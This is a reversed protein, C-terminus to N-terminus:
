RKGGPAERGTELCTISADVSFEFKSDTSRRRAGGSRADAFCHSGKLAAAIKDVNEAADTTGQLHLKDKTLEIREFRVPVDAPVRESVEAFADVASVRPIAAGATGRGRLVAQAEEFNSFCRGVIKQEADCLSRDLASEHHSLAFAKVGASVIALLVVLGAYAALRAVKGKVHEFDRTFALDGRRLNLRPARSGQQGRLALALALALAPAEAPAIAQAAPGALELPAVTGEVEPAVAEALVPLRGAEGALALRAVPRQGARARWARLTARLERLLPALARRLTEPVRPDNAKGALAEPLEPGGGAAAVVAAGEAETISLERALARALHAGGFAFTRAAECGGTVVAISTRELGVDVVVGAGAPAGEAPAPAAALAGAQFLSAYAAAAPVVARPDIGVEALAALLGSLEERRAVAVLLDTKGPYAGLPQWDWAVDALDFPIQGEVEFGVTQEIRKPDTFPLTVVNSSVGAGPLAVVVSDFRWGREDLLARAAAAQRAALPQAADAAPLAVRASGAVSFGRFAGELLVAKVAHAGLDLGLINQAM